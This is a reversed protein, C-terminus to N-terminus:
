LMNEQFPSSGSSSKTPMSLKRLANLSGINRSARRWLVIMMTRDSANWIGNASAMAISRLARRRPRAIRRVSNKAGYTRDSTTVPTTHRWIRRGSPM